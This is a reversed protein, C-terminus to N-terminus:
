GRLMDLPKVQEERSLERPRQARRKEFEREVWEKKGPVSSLMMLPVNGSFEKKGSIAVREREYRSKRHRYRYVREDRYRAQSTSVRRIERKREPLTSLMGLPKMGHQVEAYRAGNDRGYAREYERDDSFDRVERYERRQAVRRNQPIGSLMHLPRNPSPKVRREHVSAVRRGYATSIDDGYGNDDLDDFVYSSSPASKSKSRNVYRPPTGKIVVKTGVDAWYYMKQAFGNEMRICGHSAPYNPVYGLHMAVGYDTLRLMYNMRAGGNPEPYKSSVHDIDKELVRFHGTPTRRGPKGTSVHGHMVEHGNEYAYAEQESLNVVIMKEAFLSVSAALLTIIFFSKKM